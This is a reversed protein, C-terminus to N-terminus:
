GGMPPGQGMALCHVELVSISQQQNDGEYVSQRGQVRCWRVLGGLTQARGLEVNPMLTAEIQDLFNNIVTAGWQDASPTDVRVYVIVNAILLKTAPAPGGLKWEYTEGFERLILFPQQGPSIQSWPIWKRASGMLGPVTQLVAYLAAYVSERSPTM